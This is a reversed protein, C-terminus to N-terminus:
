KPNSHLIVKRGPIWSWNKLVGSDLLKKVGPMIHLWAEYPTGRKLFNCEQCCPVCNKITHGILSNKRDISMREFKRECYFCPKTLMERIIARTLEFEREHRRDTGKANQYLVYDYNNRAYQRTVKNNCKKCETRYFFQEVGNLIQPFRYFCDDEKTELCFRCKRM